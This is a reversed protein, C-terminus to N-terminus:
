WKAVYVLLLLPKLLEAQSDHGSGGWFVLVFFVRKFKNSEINARKIYCRWYLPLYRCFKINIDLLFMLYRKPGRGMHAM